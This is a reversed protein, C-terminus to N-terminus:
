IQEDSLVSLSKEIIRSLFTHARWSSQKAFVCLWLATITTGSGYCLPIRYYTWLGEKMRRVNTFYGSFELKKTVVLFRSLKREYQRWKMHRREKKSSGDLWSRIRRICGYVKTCEQVATGEPEGVWEGSYHVSWVWCRDCSRCHFQARETCCGTLVRSECRCCRLCIEALCSPLDWGWHWTLPYAFLLQPLKCIVPNYKSYIM